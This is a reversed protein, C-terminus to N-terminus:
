GLRTGADGWMVAYSVGRALVLQRRATLEVVSGNRACSGGNTKFVIPQGSSSFGLPRGNISIADGDKVRIIVAREVGCRGEHLLDGLLRKGTPSLEVTFWSQEKDRARALVTYQGAENLSFIAGKLKGAECQAYITKTKQAVPFCGYPPRVEEINIPATGAAERNVAQQDSVLRHRDAQLIWDPGRRSEIFTPPASSWHELTLGALRVIKKGSLDILWSDLAYSIALGQSPLTPLERQKVVERSTTVRAGDSHSSPAKNGCGTLAVVSMLALFVYAQKITM